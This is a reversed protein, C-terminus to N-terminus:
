WCINLCRIITFFCCCCFLFELWKWKRQLWSPINFTHANIIDYYTKQCTLFYLKRIMEFDKSSSYRLRWECFLFVRKGILTHKQPTPNENSSCLLQLSLSETNDTGNEFINSRKTRKSSWLLILSYWPRRYTRILSCGGLGIYPIMSLCLTSGEIKKLHDALDRASIKFLHLLRNWAKYQWCFDKKNLSINM